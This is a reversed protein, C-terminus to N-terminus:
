PDIVITCTLTQPELDDLPLVLDGNADTPVPGAGCDVTSATGGDIHSDVSVSVNTLPINVFELATADACTTGEVVTYTQEPMRRQSM